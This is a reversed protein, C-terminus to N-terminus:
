RAAVRIILIFIHPRSAGDLPSTLRVGRDLPTADIAHLHNKQIELRKPCRASERAKKIEMVPSGM